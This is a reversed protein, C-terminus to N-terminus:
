IFESNYKKLGIFATLRGIADSHAVVYTHQPEYLETAQQEELHEEYSSELSFAQPQMEMLHICGLECLLELLLMTDVPLLHPFRLFLNHVTCGIRCICESLIAGLWRDLVRRNLSANLRIWPQPRMVIVERGEDDCISTVAAPPKMEAADSRLKVRKSRRSSSQLTEDSDTDESATPPQPQLVPEALKAQKSTSPQDADDLAASAKRKQGLVAQPTAPSAAVLTQVRERELRKIHFTHVVWNRMHNKHVYMHSAVGVRKLLYHQELEHLAEFLFKGFPFLRRLETGEVGLPQKEVHALIEEMHQIASADLNKAQLAPRLTEFSNETYRWYSARTVKELLEKRLEAQKAQEQQLEQCEVHEMRICPLHVVFVDQARAREEKNLAPEYEQAQEAEQKGDECDLLGTCLSRWDTLKHLTREALAKGVDKCEDAHQQQRWHQELQQVISLLNSPSVCFTSSSSDPQLPLQVQTQTISDAVLQRLVVRHEYMIREVANLYNGSRMICGFPCEGPDLRGGSISVSQGLADLACFFHMARLPLKSLQNYPSCHLRYSLNAPHFRVRTSQRGSCESELRKAYETQPANDFISSYHDLIRDTASGSSRSMSSTDVTLINSPLQLALRLRSNALWEGMLLVQAFNPSYLQVSATGQQQRFRQEFAYFVDYLVHGMKQCSLRSKYKSSLLHAPGSIQRSISQINRRKVAVLLSNVRARNFAENLVGESFHKYIEFAQLNFLTKDKACCLISHLVGMAITVQLETETSPNAYLMQDADDNLPLCERFRRQYDELNDPLIFQRRVTNASSVLRHLKTLVLVFHVLLAENHESRSPYAQKLKAIFRDNYVANFQPQTQMAYIWNPVEPLDRKMRILFQMRRVCAHTTKHCIGLHHRIVDRCVTGVNFLALASLPADLFLYVARALKLLLDEAPTWSVRLTRMNRLADRDIDDRPGSKSKRVDGHTRRHQLKPTPKLRMLKIRRRVPLATKTSTKLSNGTFPSAKVTGKVWSWHRFQHAYLSSSLGAAGLRDGPVSGTDQQLAEEFSACTNVFKLPPLRLEKSTGVRREKHKLFGLKTYICVHQLKAWYGTIQERTEFEFRLEEYSRDTSILNYNHGTSTTTDLLCSRRNLYVWRQLADRGLKIEGVQVLGMNNLLRLTNLYLQQLRVRPILNQLQLQQLLYHQRVPHQLQPRLQEMEDPEISFMRMILSLPMREVADMFYLWGAPKNEYLPLPPVFTRWSIEETYPLAPLEEAQWETLFERVQLSPETRQWQQLREANMPLPKQDRQQEVLLYFLFEHLTCALLLKPALPKSKSGPKQDHRQQKKRDALLEKRKKTKLQQLSMAPREEVVLHFNSKLRLVEHQLLEHQTDIKPHTVLRYLRLRQSYQLTVEYVNIIDAEQMRRLLRFLSKRCIKERCGIDQEAQTIVRTLDMSHLICKKDVAKVILLKRELQRQTEKEEGSRQKQPFVMRRVSASIEPLDKPKFDVRQPLNLEPQCQLRQMSQKLGVASAAQSAAVFRSMRTKGVHETFDKVLKEHVLYKICSRVIQINVAVYSALEATSMGRAGFRMIARLCEQELPMDLYTHSENFFEPAVKDENGADWQTLEELKLQPNRLRTVTVKRGKQQDKGSGNDPPLVQVTEYVKRFSHSLMMKKVQAQSLDELYDCIEGTALQKDPSAQIAVYLKEIVRQLNSKYVRFFRPLMVLMSCIARTESRETYSQVTVLNLRKLKNKMYFIFSSDKFYNTLSWPGAMTEGNFRSRGVCELLIYQQLSQMDPVLANPPKLAIIRQEQSAVVVMTQHWRETAEVATLQQLEQVDIPKRTWYDACSGMISGDQIPAYPLRVFPCTKAMVPLGVETDLDKSRDYPPLIPRAEPLEFFQVKTPSRLLLTWVQEKLKEPLESGLDLRKSLLIWLWPLTTGELGELAIEDFVASIWSGGSSAVFM